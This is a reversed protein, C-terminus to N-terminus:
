STKSLMDQIGNRFSLFNFDPFNTLFKKNSPIFGIDSKQLSLNGFLLQSKSGIIEKLEIIYSKLIRNDLSSLNYIGEFCNETGLNFLMRAADDVYLYNWNQNCNTLKIPRNSLMNKIAYMILSNHYDYQGYVSFLRPWIIKLDKGNNLELIKNYTELKAKGYESIPSPLCNETIIGDNYGYEAQSGAGIFVSAGLTRAVNFTNISIEFNEKQLRINNRADSRTGEWGLHYFISVKSGLINLLSKINLLDCEVIDINTFPKLRLINSSNPRVIATIKYDMKQKLFIKILHIGIFSTSGTIIVNKM